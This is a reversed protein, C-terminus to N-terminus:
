KLRRIGDKAEKFNRDLAVAREYNTLAESTNGKAEFCRGMWFYADANTNSVTAAMVFVHLATDYHKQDYLIIGKELYADTFKWDRKICEEFAALAQPYQRTDSYFTGKIFYPDTQIGATDRAILEDCITLALPNLSAAYLNALAVGTHNIPQIAYAKSLANIAGATDQLQALLQGREYWAEFNNSDRQLQEDFQQLAKARQGTQVYIEGMRRPFERNDPFRKICDQLLNTATKLDGILMLNAAYMIGTGEDPHLTWAKNYDGSALEHQDHQSLLVARQLYLDAQKPFQSISDTLGAFPPSQLMKRTKEAAEDGEGCSALLLLLSSLLLWKNM